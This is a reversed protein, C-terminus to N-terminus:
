DNALFETHTNNLSKQYMGTAESLGDSIDHKPKLM